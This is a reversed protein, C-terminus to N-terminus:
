SNYLMSIAYNKPNRIKYLHNNLQKICNRMATHDVKLLKSRVVECPIKRDNIRIPTESGSAIIDVMYGIVQDLTKPNIEAFRNDYEDVTIEDTDMQRDLRDLEHSFLDTNVNERIIQGYLAFLDAQTPSDIPGDVGPDVVSPNISETNTKNTNFIETNTQPQNELGPSDLNPNVQNPFDCNPVSGTNDISENIQPEEFIVYETGKLRGIEDRIRSRILYHNDELQKLCSRLASQGTGTIKALGRETYDWGDPLSLMITLLGKAALSLNMDRLHYNSVVTYNKNKEIRFVSM